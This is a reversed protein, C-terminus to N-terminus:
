GRTGPLFERSREALDYEDAKNTVYPVIGQRFYLFLVILLVGFLMSRYAGFDRLYDDIFIIVVAGILPGYLTRLGGIILVILVIVDIHAFDFQTPTLFGTRQGFLPGTLGMVFTAIVGAIVKYRIVNIGIAEAAGQDQRIMEFALGMRSNMIHQYVLMMALLLAAIVYFLVMQETLGPLEQLPTITLDNVRLGTEGGTVHRYANILEIFSFQLALTLIAIVIIGAGRRASVYSVIGGILGALSAGILITLWPSIELYNALLISTYGGTAVMAGTFLLLQDTHGFVINLAIALIAFLAMFMIMRPVTRSGDFLVWPILFLIVAVLSIQRLDWNM